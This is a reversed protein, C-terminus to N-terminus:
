ILLVKVYKIRNVPISTLFLTIISTDAPYHYIDQVNLHILSRWNGQLTSLLTLIFITKCLATGYVSECLTYATKKRVISVGHLGIRGACRLLFLEPTVSPFLLDWRCILESNAIESYTCANRRCRALASGAPLAPLIARVSNQGRPPSVTYFERRGYFIGERCPTLHPM